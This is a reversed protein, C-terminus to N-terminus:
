LGNLEAPDIIGRDRGTVSYFERGWEMRNITELLNKTEVHGDTYVFSTVNGPNDFKVIGLDAMNSSDFGPAPDVGGIM